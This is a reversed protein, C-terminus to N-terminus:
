HSVERPDEKWIQVAASTCSHFSDCPLGAYQQGLRPGSIPVHKPWRTTPSRRLPMPASDHRRYRLSRIASLLRDYLNPPARLHGNSRPRLSRPLHHARDLTSQLLNDLRVQIM